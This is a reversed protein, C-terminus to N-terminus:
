ICLCRTKLRFIYIVNGNISVNKKYKEQQGCFCCKSELRNLRLLHWTDESRLTTINRNNNRSFINLDQIAHSSSVFFHVTSLTVINYENGSCGDDRMQINVYM